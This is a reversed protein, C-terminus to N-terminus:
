ASPGLHFHRQPGKAAREIIGRNLFLAIKGTPAQPGKQGFGERERDPLLRLSSTPHRM